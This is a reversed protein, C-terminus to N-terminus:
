EFRFVLKLGYNYADYKDKEGTLYYTRGKGTPQEMLRFSTDVTQEGSKTVDRGFSMDFRDFISEDSMASDDELWKSLFDRGLFLMVNTSATGSTGAAVDDRPPQGTLLLLMLDENPLTPNSSLTFTLDDLPGSTVVNIDYGLVRSQALLDLHPRDPEGQLFHLVGSQVQLRGSPLLVRSPDIYVTGVLFPLEGTGQLSLEPRLAARVLNNRIRFPEISTIKIDFVLDKLPPDQFSFLFGVGESVPAASSGIKGLLDFNRTFYGGTLATTGNVHLKELPGAVQLNVDGRMHMDSNRFLLVNQGDVQLDVMVTENDKKIRGNFTVPSGGVEAGMNEITLSLENFNSQLNVNTLMPFNLTHSLEGDQLSISGNFDPNSIPGSVQVKSQMDGEFRRLWPLTQRLFNLDKLQVTADASVEGRMAAKSGQLLDLLAYGHQWSGSAQATYLTSELSATKLSITDGQAVIECTMDIPADAYQKLTDPPKIGKAQLLFHGEPRNWTGSLDIDLAVSGKGIGWRELLVAIDELAPFEAHGQLSLPTDLFPEDAL